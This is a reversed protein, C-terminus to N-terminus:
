RRGPGLSIGAAGAVHCSEELYPSAERRVESPFRGMQTAVVQPWANCPGLAGQNPREGATCFRCPNVSLRYRNYQNSPKFCFRPIACNPFISPCPTSDPCANPSSDRVESPAIAQSRESFVSSFRPRAARFSKRSQRGGWNTWACPAPSKGCSQTIRNPPVARRAPLLFAPPSFGRKVSATTAREASIRSQRQVQSPGAQM